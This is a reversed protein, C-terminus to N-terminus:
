YLQKATPIRQLLRMWTSIRIKRGSMSSMPLFFSDGAVTVSSVSNEETSLAENIHFVAGDTLILSGSHFVANTGELGASNEVHCEAGNFDLTEFSFCTDNDMLHMTLGNGLDASQSQIQAAGSLTFCMKGADSASLQFSEMDSFMTESGDVSLFVNKGSEANGALTGSFTGCFSFGMGNEGTQLVSAVSGGTWTLNQANSGVNVFLLADYQTAPIEASHELIYSVANELTAFANIGFSFGEPLVSEETWQSNLRFETTIGTGASM